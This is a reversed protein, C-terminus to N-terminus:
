RRSRRLLGTVQFTVAVATLTSFGLITGYRDLQDRCNVALLLWWPCIAWLLLDTGRGAIYGCILLFAFGLHFKSSLFRGALWCWGFSGLLSAVLDILAVATKVGLGLLPIVLFGYGPPWDRLHVYSVESLDGVYQGHIATMGNGAAFRVAAQLQRSHDRGPAAFALISPLVSLLYLLAFVLSRARIARAIDGPWTDPTRKETLIKM